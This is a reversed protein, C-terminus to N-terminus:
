GGIQVNLGHQEFTDKIDDLREQSLLQIQLKYNRGLQQYKITGYEHYAMLDVREVSSLRSLFEAISEINEASDNYGPIIPLRIIISKGISALHSLNDLILKNSVGTNERHQKPAIGKLDYLLLDAEELAKLGDSTSTYGCTDVATHIYNEKCKKLLARTFLPQFTPEGGGITVGGGGARYFQEDKKVIDFVEDVTMWQGFYDLAGTYCVEICKGCNTCLQRDINIKDDEPRLAIQIANVPCIPVCRGCGDCKSSTFKIEPAGIQGEPNCCWVCRLPCGKLFVTTRIGYGDVFSGHIIHFILGANNDDMTSVSKQKTGLQKRLKLKRFSPEPL